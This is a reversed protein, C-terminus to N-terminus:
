TQDLIYNVAWGFRPEAIGTGYVYGNDGDPAMYKKLAPSNLREDMIWECRITHQVVKRVVRNVRVPSLIIGPPGVITGM